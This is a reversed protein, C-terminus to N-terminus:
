GQEMGRNKYKNYVKNAIGTSVGAVGAGIATAAMQKPTLWKHGSNLVKTVRSGPRSFRKLGKDILDEGAGYGVVGSTFGVAGSAVSRLKSPNNNQAPTAVVRSNDM